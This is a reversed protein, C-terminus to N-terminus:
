PSMSLVVLGAVAALLSILALILLRCSNSAPGTSSLGLRRALRSWADGEASRLLAYL